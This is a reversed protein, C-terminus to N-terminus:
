RMKTSIYVGNKKPNQYVMYQFTRNGATDYSKYQKLELNKTSSSELRELGTWERQGRLFTNENMQLQITKGSGADRFILSIENDCSEACVASYAEIPFCTRGEKVPQVIENEISRNMHWIKNEKDYYAYYLKQQDARDGQATQYFLYLRKKYVCMAPNYHFYNEVPSGGVEKEAEWEEGDGALHYIGLGKEKDETNEKRYVFNIRENYIVPKSLYAPAATEGCKTVVIDPVTFRDGLYHCMMMKKDMVFFLYLKDNYFVAVPHGDARLANGQEDVVAKVSDYNQTNEHYVSFKMNKAQDTYFLYVLEDKVAVAPGGYELKAADETGDWIKETMRNLFQSELFFEYSDANKVARDPHADAMSRCRERGYCKKGDDCGVDDTYAVAHTLEHLLTGMKSDEGTLAAREYAQCLYITRSGKTTYGYTYRDREKYIYTLQERRMVEEVKDYVEQVTQYRDADYEGFVMRYHLNKNRVTQDESILEKRSHYLYDALIYHAKRTAQTLKEKFEESYGRENDFQILPETYYGVPANQMEMREMRYASMGREMQGITVCMERNLDLLTFGKEKCDAEEYLPASAVGRKGARRFQIQRNFRIKYYGAKDIAYNKALCIQVSTSEGANLLIYDELKELKEGEGQKVLFGDYEVEEDKCIVQFCDHDLEDMGLSQKLLYYPFRTKNKVTITVEIPNGLIYVKNLKLKVQFRAM